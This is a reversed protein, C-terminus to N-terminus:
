SAAQRGDKELVPIISHFPFMVQILESSKQHEQTNGVMGAHDVGGVDVPDDRRDLGGENQGPHELEGM